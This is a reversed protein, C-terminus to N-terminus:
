TKLPKLYTACVGLLLLTISSPEPVAPASATAAISRRWNLALANLDAAGVSGDVNFDGASWFAVDQRWSLALNNLDSADVSGDLNADGELYAERFGNHEAADSLWATVDADDVVTDGTVDFNPNHTMSLVESTLLDIDKVDLVGDKNFDGPGGDSYLLTLAVNDLGIVWGSTEADTASAWRIRLDAGAPIEAAVVGSDFLVRNADANGDLMGGPVPQLTRGTTVTGLDVLPTFGDGTDIDVTVNFAAEGPDDPGGIINNGFPVGDRADWAETDFRLQFSNVDPGAVTALLQLFQEDSAGVVGLALARDTDNEAGANFVSKSAFAEGIPFPLTTTSRYFKGDVTWGTPFNTGVVTGDIGLAEDFDQQYTVGPGDLSIADLHPLPEANAEVFRFEVPGLDGSTPQYTWVGIRGEDVYASEHPLDVVIQPPPQDTGDLWATLSAEYGFVDFQMHVDQGTPDWGTPVNRRLFTVGGNLSRGVTLRGDGDLFGWPQYGTRPGSSGDLTSRAFIGAGDEATIKFMTRISVDGYTSRTWDADIGDGRTNGTLVLNGDLVERSATPSSYNTILSGNAEGDEFDDFVPLSQAQCNAALIVAYIM